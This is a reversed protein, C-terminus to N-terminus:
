GRLAFRGLTSMVEALFFDALTLGESGLVVPSCDLDSKGPLEACDHLINIYSSM